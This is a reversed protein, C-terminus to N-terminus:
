LLKQNPLVRDIDSSYIRNWSNMVHLQVLRILLLFTLMIPWLSIDWKLRTIPGQYSRKILNNIELRLFREFFRISASKTLSITLNDKGSEQPLNKM